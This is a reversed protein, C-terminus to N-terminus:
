AGTPIRPPGPHAISLDSGNSSLRSCWVAWFAEPDFEYDPGLLRRLSLVAQRQVFTLDDAPM